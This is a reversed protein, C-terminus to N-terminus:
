SIFTGVVNVYVVTGVKFCTYWTSVSPDTSPNGTLICGSFTISRSGVSDQTAVFDLVMGDLFNSFVVSINLNVSCVFFKSSSANITTTAAATLTVPTQPVPYPVSSAVWKGTTSNWVVTQGETATGDWLSSITNFITNLRQANSNFIFNWFQQGYSITELKSPNLISM